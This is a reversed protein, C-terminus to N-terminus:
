LSDKYEEYMKDMDALLKMALANPSCENMYDEIVSFGTNAYKDALAFVKDTDTVEEVKKEIKLGKYEGLKVEPKPTVTAKFVLDKGEECTVREFQPYVALEINEEKLAENFVKPGYQEYAEDLVTEKGVHQEILRRPAKGRRFGPINVQNAIRKVAQNIAKEWDEAPVEITLVVQQNDANEKTVKM